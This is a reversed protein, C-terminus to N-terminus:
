GRGDSAAGYFIDPPDILVIAGGPFSQGACDVSSLGPKFNKMIRNSMASATAANAAQTIYAGM